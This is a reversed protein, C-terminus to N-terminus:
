NFVRALELQALDSTRDRCFWHGAAGPPAAANVARAAAPGMQNVDLDLRRVASQPRLQFTRDALSRVM